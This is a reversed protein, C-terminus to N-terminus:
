FIKKFKMFAYGGCLSLLGFFYLRWKNRKTRMDKYDAEAKRLDTRLIDESLECARVRATNEKEITDVRIVTKTFTKAPLTKTVTRYVTDRITETLTDFTNEGVYLTDFIISDKGQIVREKVIFSEACMEAQEKPHNNFLQRAKDLKKATSCGGLTFMFLILLAVIITLVVQAIKEKITM